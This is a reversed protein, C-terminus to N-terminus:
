LAKSKLVFVLVLILNLKFNKRTNKFCSVGFTGNKYIKKVSFNTRNNM